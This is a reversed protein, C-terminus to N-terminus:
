KGYNDLTKYITTMREDYTGKLRVVPIKFHEIAEEFLDIIKKRFEESSSREGDEVLKIDPETYFIIDYKDKLKMFLNAVYDLVWISVKGNYHLYTTYVLADLICRDMVVKRGKHSLYNDLHSNICVLQTFDDGKENITLNYKKKLTRTIEPVYDYGNFRGDFKCKNLLTSKGTSQAGTFSIIM